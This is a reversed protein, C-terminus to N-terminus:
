ATEGVATTLLERDAENLEEFRLAYTQHDQMRLVRARGHAHRDALPLDFDLVEDISLPRATIVRMGGAGVDVTRGHIRGGKDRDLLLELSVSVRHSARRQPFKPIM